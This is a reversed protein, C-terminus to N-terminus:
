YKTKKLDPCDQHNHAMISGKATARSALTHISRYVFRYAGTHALTHTHLYWNAVPVARIFTWIHISPKPWWRWKAAASTKGTRQERKAKRM